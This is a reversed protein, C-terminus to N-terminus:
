LLDLFNPFKAWRQGGSADISWLSHPATRHVTPALTVPGTGAGAPRWFLCFTLGGGGLCAESEAEM